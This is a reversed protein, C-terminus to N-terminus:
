RPAEFVRLFDSNVAYRFYRYACKALDTALYSIRDATVVDGGSVASDIDLIWSPLNTAPVALDITAGAPLVGCRVLMSHAGRNFQEELLGHHITVDDPLTLAATGMMEPRILKPLDAIVKDSTVRNIYRIGFRDFRPPAAKRVFTDVLRVLRDCFDRRGTYALAELSLSNRGLTVLWDGDATQLRWVPSTMQEQQSVTAGAILLSIERAEEFLPYDGSVEKAFAHAVTDDAMSALQPYRLQAIVRVLPAAALHIEELPEDGFPTALMFEGV